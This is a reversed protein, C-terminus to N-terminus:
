KLYDEITKVIAKEVYNNTDLIHKRDRENLLYGVELLAAPCKVGKLMLYDEQMIGRNTIRSIEELNKAALKALEKGNKYRWYVESGSISKWGKYNNIHLSIFLNANLKNALEPRSEIPCPTINNERTLYVNYKKSNLMERIRKAKELIIDAEKFEKYRIGWDMKKGRNKMGHGPDIVVIKRIDKMIPKSSEIYITNTEPSILERTNSFYLISSILIIKDIKKLPFYNM